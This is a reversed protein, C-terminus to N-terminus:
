EGQMRMMENLVELQMENFGYNIAMEEASFSQIYITKIRRSVIQTETVLEGDEDTKTFSIEEEIIEIESTVVNMSWFVKKLKDIQEEKLVAMQMSNEEVVNYKLAFVILVDTSNDTVTGENNGELKVKIEDVTSDNKEADIKEKFQLRLSTMTHSLPVEEPNIDGSRQSFFIAFPSALVLLILMLPVLCAILIVQRANEDTVAATAVKTNSPRNANIM